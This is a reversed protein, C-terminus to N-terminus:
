IINLFKLTFRQYDTLFKSPGCSIPHWGLLGVIEVMCMRDPHPPDLLVFHAPKAPIFKLSIVAYSKNIAIM